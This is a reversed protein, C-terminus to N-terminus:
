DYILTGGDVVINQGTVFAGAPSTLWAITGGIEEATGFRGLPTRALRPGARDPDVTIPRAFPTDVVGPSVANARVNRHGWQVALNRALQAGAAKTMGYLGLLRNGRLGVLSSVIVFAGGGAAAMVPIALNALRLPARM